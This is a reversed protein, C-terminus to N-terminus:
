YKKNLDLNLDSRVKVPESDSSSNSRSRSSESSVDQQESSRSTQPQRNGRNIRSAFKQLARGTIQRNGGYFFFFLSAIFLLESRVTFSLGYNQFYINLM